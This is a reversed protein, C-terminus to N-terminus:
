AEPPKASKLLSEFNTTVQDMAVPEATEGEASEKAEKEDLYSKIRKLLIERSEKHFDPIDRHDKGVNISYPRTTLPNKNDLFARFYASFDTNERNGYMVKDEEDAIKKLDDNTEIDIFFIPYRKVSTVGKIDQLTLFRLAKRDLDVGIEENIYGRSENNETTMSFYRSALDASLILMRRSAYDRLRFGLDMSPGIFDLMRAPIEERRARKEALGVLNMVDFQPPASGAFDPNQGEGLYMEHNNIPFGASWVCFKFDFRESKDFKERLDEAM